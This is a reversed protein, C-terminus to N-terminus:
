AFPDAGKNKKMIILNYFIYYTTARRVCVGVGESSGWVEAVATKM